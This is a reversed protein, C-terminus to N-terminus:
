GGTWPVDRVRAAAAEERALRLEADILTQLDDAKQELRRAVGNLGSIVETARGRAARAGECFSSAAPGEWTDAGGKLVLLDFDLEIRTATRRVADAALRLSSPTLAV